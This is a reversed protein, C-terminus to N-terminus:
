PKVRKFEIVWVFPNAEWADKGYISDWLYIFATVASYEWYPPRDGCAPALYRIGGGVSEPRQMVEIGERKADEETIEQLKEVRVNTIELTIRSAWKPMHISPRLYEGHKEIANEIWGTIPFTQRVRDAAYIIDAFNEGNYCVSFKERVFLRDGPIGYPCPVRVCQNGREGRVYAVGVSTMIKGSDIRCDSDPQPKVLRRTTTKRTELIARVMESSFIIPREKM